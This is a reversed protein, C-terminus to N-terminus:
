ILKDRITQLFFDIEECTTAHGISARVAGRSLTGLFRHAGPSCHLGGRVAIGEQDLRDAAQSSDMDGINFSIVGLRNEMTPPGYISIGPVAQLGELLQLAREKENCRRAEDHAKLWQIAAHLGCIGPLNQTGSEYRDPRELPQLLEDSASGTGGERLPRLIIEPACYLGGVGQPGLLGKHGPFAYFAAQIANMSVDIHGAAQAGDVLTPIGLRKMASCIESVPQIAGTVNSAHTIVALSTNNRASSVFQRPYLLHDREPELLTLTIEGRQALSSLPRLVSNHELLSCIVHDGKHLFGRLVTNLADTCSFCFSLQDAQNVGLYAAVAARCSSVQRAAHLARRHGSRGANGNWRTLGDTVAQIVDDPKPHSTAAHDLYVEM